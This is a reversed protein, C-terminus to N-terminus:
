ALVKMLIRAPGHSFRRLVGACWIRITDFFSWPGFVPPTLFLPDSFFSTGL